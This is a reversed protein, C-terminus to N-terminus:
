DWSLSSVPYSSIALSFIKIIMQKIPNEHRDDPVWNVGGRRGTKDATPGTELAPWLSNSPLNRCHGIRKGTFYEYNKQM